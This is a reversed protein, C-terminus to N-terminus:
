AAELLLAGEGGVTDLLLDVEGGLLLIGRLFLVDLTDGREFVPDEFLGLLRIRLRVEHEMNKRYIEFVNRVFLDKSVTPNESDGNLRPKLWAVFYSISNSSHSNMSHNPFDSLRGRLWSTKSGKKPENREPQFFHIDNLEKFLIKHYFYIPCFYCLNQFENCGHNGCNQSSKSYLTAHWGPPIVKLFM